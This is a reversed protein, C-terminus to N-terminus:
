EDERFDKADLRYWVEGEILSSGFDDPTLRVDEFKPPRTALDGPWVDGKSCRIMKAAAVARLMPLDSEAFDIKHPVTRQLILRAECIHRPSLPRFTGHVATLNQALALGWMLAGDAFVEIIERELRASAKALHRDKSEFEKRGADTLVYLRNRQLIERFPDAGCHALLEDLVEVKKGKAKVGLNAAIAKLEPVTAVTLLTERPEVICFLGETLFREVAKDYREGLLKPGDDLETGAPRNGYGRAFYALREISYPTRTGAAFTWRSGELLRWHATSSRWGLYGVLNPTAPLETALAEDKKEVPVHFTGVELVVEVGPAVEIVRESDMSEQTETGPAGAADLIDVVEKKEQWRALDLATEGKGDRLRLDPKAKLIEFVFPVSHEMSLVAFMLPTRGDLDRANVDAGLQLLERVADVKSCSVACHLPTGRWKVTSKLNAGAAVLARCLPM